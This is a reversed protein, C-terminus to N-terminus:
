ISYGVCGLGYTGTNTSAMNFFLAQPNIVDLDSTAISTSTAGSVTANATLKGIGSSSSYINLEVGVGPSTQYAIIYVSISVANFPVASAYSVPGITTVGTATTYVTSLSISIHRERQFGITFQSSAVRWVSVLASATYGSPMNSGGYVEPARASTANVALLASAGSTPNYIAYLAVYGT